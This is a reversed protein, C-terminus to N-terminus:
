QKTNSYPPPTPSSPRSNERSKSMIEIVNLLNDQSRDTQKEVQKRLSEIEADKRKIEKKLNEILEDKGEVKAELVNGRGMGAGFVFGNYELGIGKNVADKAVGISENVVNTTNSMFQATMNEWGKRWNEVTDATTHIVDGFGEAGLKAMNESFEKLEEGIKDSSDIGKKIIEVVGTGANIAVETGSKLTTKYIDVGENISKEFMYGGMDMGKNAFYASAELTGHYAAFGAGVLPGLVPFAKQGIDSVYKDAMKAIDQSIKVVEDPNGSKTRELGKQIESLKEKYENREKALESGFNKLDEAAQESDKNPFLNRWEVLERETKVLKEKTEVLEKELREEKERDVTITPVSISVEESAIIEAKLEDLSGKVVKLLRKIKGWGDEDSLSEDIKGRLEKVKAQQKDEVSKEVEKLEKDINVLFEQAEDQSLKKSADKTNEDIKRTIEEIKEITNTM